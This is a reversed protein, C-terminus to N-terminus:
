PYYGVNDIKDLTMDEPYYLKCPSSSTNMGLCADYAWNSASAPITLKKLIPCYGLIRQSRVNENFTFNSLDLEPLSICGYFMYSFNEVNSTNFYEMHVRTLSECGNFM